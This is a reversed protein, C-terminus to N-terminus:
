DGASRSIDEGVNTANALQTDTEDPWAVEIADVTTDASILRSGLTVVSEDVKLGQRIEVLDGDRIGVSVQRLTTVLADPDDADPQLVYLASGDETDFLAALPVVLAQPKTQLTLAVRAHMGPKLVTKPNPIEIHVAATRTEASLVPAKRVVTGIFERTPLADTVVTATQGVQVRQYDHETIHVVTSVTELDVITLLPDTSEALDGVSRLRQAIYGSVPALLRCQDLEWQARTSEALAQAVRAQELEVEAQLVKLASATAQQESETLVGRDALVKNRALEREAQLAQAQKAKLQSEALQLSAQAAAKLARYRSDDLQVLLDDRNVHDGVDCPLLRIYESLSTRIEVQARPELSGVLEIRDSLPRRQVAVYEVAVRDQPAPTESSEANEVSAMSQRWTVVGAAIAIALAILGLLYRKM